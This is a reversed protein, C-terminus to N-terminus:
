AVNNSHHTDNIESPHPHSHLRERQSREAGAGFQFKEIFVRQSASTNLASPGLGLCGCVLSLRLFRFFYISKCPPALELKRLFFFPKVCGARVGAVCRWLGVGSCLWSSVFARLVCVVLGVIGVTPVAGLNDAM